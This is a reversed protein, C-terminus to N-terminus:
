QWKDQKQFLFSKHEHELEQLKLYLERTARIDAAADHWNKEEGGVIRGYVTRLKFNEMQHRVEMLEQGALTMVDIVPTWFWSGFFKDNGKKKWWTRLFDYDFTGNYGVFFAKDKKNYPDIYEQLTGKVQQFALQSTIRKPDNLLDNPTLGSVELAEVEIVDEKDPRIYWIAEHRVTGDIEIIMAIQHIMNKWPQLGSTELDIYIKKM